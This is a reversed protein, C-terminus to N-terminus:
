HFVILSPPFMVEIIVKAKDVVVNTTRPRPPTVASMSAAAALMSSPPDHSSPLAPLSSPAHPAQTIAATVCGHVWDRLQSNHFWSMSQVQSTVRKSLPVIFRWHWICSRVAAVGRHYNMRLMCRQIRGSRSMEDCPPACWARSFLLCRISTQKSVLCRWHRVVQILLRVRVFRRNFATHATVKLQAVVAAAHWAHFHLRVLCRLRRRAQAICAVLLSRTKQLSQPVAPAVAARARTGRMVVRSETHLGFSGTGNAKGSTFV